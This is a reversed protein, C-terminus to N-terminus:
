FLFHMSFQSLIMKALNLCRNEDRNLAFKGRRTRLTM